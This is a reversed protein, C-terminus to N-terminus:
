YYLFPYQYSFRTLTIPQMTLTILNRLFWTLYTGILTVVSLVAGQITYVRFEKSVSSHSDFKQLKEQFGGM